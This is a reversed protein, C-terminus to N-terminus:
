VGGAVALVYESTTFGNPFTKTYVMPNQYVDFVGDNIYLNWNNAQRKIIATNARIEDKFTSLVDCTCDIQWLGNRVSTINNVFYKRGFEDITLYNCNRVEDISASILISPSVISCGERLTGTVISINTVTKDLANVESSNRQLAISFSM